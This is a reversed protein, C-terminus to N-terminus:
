TSSPRAWASCHNAWAPSRRAGRNPAEVRAAAFTTADFVLKQPTELTPGTGRLDASLGQVGSVTKSRCGTLLSRNGTDNEFDLIASSGQCLM